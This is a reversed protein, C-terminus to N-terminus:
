KWADYDDAYSFGGYASGFYSNHASAFHKGEEAGRMLEYIDKLPKMTIDDNETSIALGYATSLIPCLDNEIIEDINNQIHNIEDKFYADNTM